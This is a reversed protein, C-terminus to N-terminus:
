RRQRKAITKTALEAQDEAPTTEHRSSCQGDASKTHDIVRLRLLSSKAVLFTKDALFSCLVTNIAKAAFSRQPQSRVVYCKPNSVVTLLRRSYPQDKCCLM